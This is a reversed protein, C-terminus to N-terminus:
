FAARNPRLYGARHIGDDVVFLPVVQQARAAARLM